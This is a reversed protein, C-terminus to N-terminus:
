RPPSSRAESSGPAPSTTTASYEFEEDAGFLADLARRRLGESAAVAVGVGFGAILVFRNLRRRRKAAADAAGLIGQALSAIREIVPLWAVLWTTRELWTWGSAGPHPRCHDRGAATVSWRRSAALALPPRAARASGLMDRVHSRKLGIARIEPLATLEKVTLGGGHDDLTTLLQCLPGRAAAV